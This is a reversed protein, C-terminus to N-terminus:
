DLDDTFPINVGTTEEESWLQQKNIHLKIRDYGSFPVLEFDSQLFTEVTRFSVCFHLRFYDIFNEFIIKQFDLELSLSFSFNKSKDVFFWSM